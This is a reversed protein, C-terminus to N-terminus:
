FICEALWLLKNIKEFLFIIKLTVNCIIVYYDTTFSFLFFISLYPRFINEKKQYFCIQTHFALFRGKIQRWWLYHFSPKARNSGSIWRISYVFCGFDIRWWSFNWLSTMGNYVFKTQQLSKRIRIWLEM